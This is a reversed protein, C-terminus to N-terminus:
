DDSDEEDDSDDLVEVAIRIDKGAFEKGVYLRGSSDVSKSTVLAPQTITVSTDTM